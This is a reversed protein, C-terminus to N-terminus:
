RRSSGPSCDSTQQDNEDGILIFLQRAIKRWANRNRRLMDMEHRLDDLKVQTDHWTDYQAQVANELKTIKEILEAKETAFQAERLDVQTPWNQSTMESRDITNPGVGM